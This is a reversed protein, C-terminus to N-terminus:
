ALGLQPRFCLARVLRLWGHCIAALDHDVSRVNAFDAPDVTLQNLLNSVVAAVVEERLPVPEAAVRAANQRMGCVDLPQAREVRRATDFRRSDAHGERCSDWAITAILDIELVQIWGADVRVLERVSVARADDRSGTLQEKPDFFTLLEFYSTRLLFDEQNDSRKGEQKM